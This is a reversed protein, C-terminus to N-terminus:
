EEEEYEEVEIELEKPVKGEKINKNLKKLDKISLTSITETDFSLNKLEKKVPESSEIPLNGKLIKINLYAELKTIVRPNDPIIGQETLKIVAEPEGIADALQERTMKRSKRAM